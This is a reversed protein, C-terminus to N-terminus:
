PESPGRGAAAQLIGHLPALQQEWALPTLDAASALARRETGTLALLSLVHSAFVDPADAVRCGARAEPPLGEFVQETVVTPLGAALAELVKNQLGRATRLPAVSVAAGWLRSQVEPVAGTVDIGTGALALRQVAPTPSSGVVSFRADPRKARVMPWVERAFWLVGDVNPGYNMVGCFIVLPDGAPPGPPRLGAVDVGNPLVHVAAAPALEHLVHAERSNVVLTAHARTAAAREFRALHRAERKYISRKPWTSKAALLRWKESDVDVLDLVLPYEALPPALALRAMGSCYALVVDPPRDRVIRTLSPVLGTADLLVHTLPRTGALAAVAAAHNRLRPVRLTTLRFPQAGMEVGRAEEDADHVLSLLELEVRAALARIIHFARVRDGRNPAYPLRHTLFLVRM